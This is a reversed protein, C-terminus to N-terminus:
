SGKRSNEYRQRAKGQIWDETPMKSPDLTGANQTGRTPVFGTGGGEALFLNAFETKQKMAKVTASPDLTMTVSRGDKDVDKWSIKVEYDGTPKGTDDIKEVLQADKSLLAVLQQPQYAKSEVAANVISSTIVTNTYRSRWADREKQLREEATKAEEKLKAAEFAAQQERTMLTSNLEELKTRLNQREAETTTKESLLAETKEKLQSMKKAYESTREEVIRNVEEVTLMKTKKSEGSGGAGGAGAGTGGEAGAGTGGETGTGTGGEGEGYGRRPISPRIAFSFMGVKHLM